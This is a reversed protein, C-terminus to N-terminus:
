FLFSSQGLGFGFKRLHQSACDNDSIPDFLAACIHRRIHCRKESASRLCRAQVGPALIRRSVLSERRRPARGVRSMATRAFIGSFSM